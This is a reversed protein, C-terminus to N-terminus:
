SFLMSNLDKVLGFTYIDVAQDSDTSPRIPIPLGPLEINLAGTPGPFIPNGMYAPRFQITAISSLPISTDTNGM